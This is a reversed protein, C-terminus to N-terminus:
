YTKIINGRYGTSILANNISNQANYSSILVSPYVNFDAIRDPHVIRINNLTSKSFVLNSDIILKPPRDKFYKLNLLKQTHSGAGWIVYEENKVSDLLSYIKQLSENSNELYKRLSLITKRYPELGRSALGSDKRFISVLVYQGNSMESEASFINNYHHLSMLDNLSKKSFFNIHENSFEGLWECNTRAFADASPVTIVLYSKDRSYRSIDLMFQQVDVIHELVSNASVINYAALYKNGKYFGTEVEIGYVKKANVRANPAPDIGKVECKFEIQMDNLFTGFSSGIDFVKEPQIGSEKIVSVTVKSIENYLKPVHEKSEYIDYKSYREYYTNLTKENQLESAYAAGCNSCCSVTYSLDLNDLIALNNRYIKESDSSQCVICTRFM